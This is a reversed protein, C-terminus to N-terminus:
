TQIINIAHLAISRSSFFMFFHRPYLMGSLRTSALTASDIYLLVGGTELAM